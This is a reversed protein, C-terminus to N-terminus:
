YDENTLSEYVVSTEFGKQYLYRLLRQKKEYSNKGKNKLQYKKSLALITEMYSASDIETLGIKINAESLGKQILNQKIKVRGWQNQNFKGRVYTRAFREENLFNNQLLYIIIEEAAVPIIRLNQLKQEVEWHTREQYSCYHELARQAEEITYSKQNRM